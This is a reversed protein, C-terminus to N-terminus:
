FLFLVLVALIAGIFAATKVEDIAAYYFYVRRIDHYTQFKRPNTKLTTLRKQINESVAVTNSGGEKYLSIEIAEAWQCMISDRDKHDEM